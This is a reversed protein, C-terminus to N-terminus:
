NKRTFIARNFEKWSGDKQEIWDVVEVRGSDLVRYLTKGRKIGAAGWISVYAEGEITGDIPYLAGSNDVWYGRYSGPGKSVFHGIGAFRQEGKSDTLRIEYEIEVALGDLVTRWVMASRSPKGFSQGQARWEGLLPGFSGAANAPVVLFLAAFAARFFSRM